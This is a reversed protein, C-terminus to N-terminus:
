LSGEERREDCSRRWFLWRIGRSRREDGAPDGEEQEQEQRQGQKDYTGTEATDRKM